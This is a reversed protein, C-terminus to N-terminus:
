WNVELGVEGSFDDILITESAPDYTGSSVKRAKVGTPHPVHVTMREPLSRKLDSIRVSITIMGNDVNSKVHLDISGFYSKMGSVDISKGHTLWMRPVGPMISLHNGDELYLMWRSRMLFWAEEHTKHPSVQYYHEWFTYTERDALSSVSNYYEKLFANREGRRLHAYPHPSYYPQSFMVNKQFLLEVSSNVIFDGYLENPDVVEQLLLYMPGTHGDRSTFTGHTFGLGGEAYLVVPGRNEAWPPAAPCWRGNRLPIVPSERLNKDLATRINKRLITAGAKIKESEENDLDELVEASRILGLYAYGNLMYSHFPDEPDAVKGDIMGYYGKARFEEKENREIWRFIYACARLIRYKISRIWDIDKTYRYHEGIDWLVAGTELMYNGFNQMFGDEHQKEIFYMIARRALDHDGVSDLYQIIPSSESGIPSYVGVVPAVAADPENGYCVLDLHLKGARMMEDIRKEPVSLSAIGDIKRMWFAKCADYHKRYTQGALADARETSVPRHPIKFLYEISEGPALLVAMEQQPVPKGNLTAVLYVREDSFSGYGTTNDYSSSRRSKGPNVFVNAEPIRVWSYRPANATNTANIKIYIVTEEEKFIERDHIKEMEAAQDATLMSAESYHDAVLINTGEVHDESLVDQELTVFLKSAYIIDDDAHRTDLMPLVGGELRRELGQICGLGRGAFYNYVIGEDGLEPVTVDRKHYRPKIWDWPDTTGSTLRTGIEFVRIDRSIGLWTVCKLERTDKAASDFSEEEAYTYEELKSRQNKSDIEQVIDNFSRKDDADTVITKYEPVYVPYEKSVDRLFFSFGDDITNCSVITAFAGPELSHKDISVKLRCELDAALAFNRGEQNIDGTCKDCEIGSIEGHRIQLTGTLESENRIIAITRM